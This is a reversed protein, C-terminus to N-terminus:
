VAPFTSPTPGTRERNGTTAPAVVSRVEGSAPGAGDAIEVLRTGSGFPGTAVENARRANALPRVAAPARADSQDRAERAVRTKIAIAAGVAKKADRPAM